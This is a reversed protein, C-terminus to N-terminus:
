KGHYQYKCAQYTELMFNLENESYSACLLPDPLRVSACHTAEPDDFCYSYTYCFYAENLTLAPKDEEECSTIEHEKLEEVETVEQEVTAAVEEPLPEGACATLLLSLTLTMTITKMAHARLQKPQISEFM